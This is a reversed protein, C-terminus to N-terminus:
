ARVNYEGCLVYLLLHLPKQNKIRERFIHALVFLNILLFNRILRTPTAYNGEYNTVSKKKPLYTNKEEFFDNSYWVIVM